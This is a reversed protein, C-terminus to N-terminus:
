YILSFSYSLYFGLGGLYSLHTAVDVGCVAMDGPKGQQALSDDAPVFRVAAVVM